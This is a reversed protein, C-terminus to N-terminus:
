PNNAVAPARAFVVLFSSDEWPLVVKEKVM